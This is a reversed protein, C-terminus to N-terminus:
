KKRMWAVNSGASRFVVFKTGSTGSGNVTVTDSATGDGLNTSGNVILQNTLTASSATIHNANAINFNSMNLTTTAIHNGLNDGSIGTLGSGDGYIKGNVFINTSVYVGGYQASSASSVVVNNSMQMRASTIGLINTATFSSATIQGTSMIGRGSTLTISSATIHNANAINFNSMNLTTTAIHNGLNDGSVLSGVDGWKLAGTAGDYLLAKNNAAGSGGVYVKSVDSFSSIGLFYAGQASFTSGGVFYAGSSVGLYGNVIVNGAGIPIAPSYSAQTSGFVTFGKIEADPDLATGGTGLVIMDDEVGFETGNDAAYAINTIAICSMFALILAWAIKKM